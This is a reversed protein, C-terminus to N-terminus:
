CRTTADVRGRKPPPPNIGIASSAVYAEADTLCSAKISLVANAQGYGIARVVVDYDAPPLSDFAALGQEDTIRSVADSQGTRIRVQAQFLPQTPRDAPRVVVHLRGLPPAEVKPAARRLRSCSLGGLLFALTCTIRQTM